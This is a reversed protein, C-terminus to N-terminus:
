GTCYQYLIACSFHCAEGGDNKVSGNLEWWWAACGPFNDFDFIYEDEGMIECEEFGIDLIGDGCEGSCDDGNLTCNSNCTVIGVYKEFESCTADVTSDGDCEEGDDIVGNGCKEAFCGEKFFGTCVLNCELIGGGNYGLSLCSNSGLNTGDCVENGAIMGDGCGLVIDPEVCLDSQCKLTGNCTGNEFCSEGENGEHAITAAEDSCNITLLVVLIAMLKKM